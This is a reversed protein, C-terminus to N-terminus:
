LPLLDGETEETRKWANTLCVLLLFCLADYQAFLVLRYFAQRPPEFIQFRPLHFYTGCFGQQTPGAVDSWSGESWFIWFEDSWIVYPKFIHPEQIGIIHNLRCELKQLSAWAECRGRCLMEYPRGCLLHWWWFVNISQPTSEIPCFCNNFLNM